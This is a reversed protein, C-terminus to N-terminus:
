SKKHFLKNNSCSFGQESISFSLKDPDFSEISIKKLDRWNVKWVMFHFYLFSSTGNIDNTIVGNNWHWKTPFNFSGDMWPIKANPTSFVELFEAKKLWPDFFAAINRLIKPSNKHRLFIKSFAKEDFALHEPNVILDKWNKIKKFATRMEDTNRLLCLHGSLRRSTLSFLQKSKLREETFHERLEGYILDIDGFGWFDYNLILEEHIYGLLPKIDCLKYPLKPNFSIQLRQSVLDCYEEFSINIVNVNQPCMEIPGCDTFFIWNITKNHACTLIYFQMWPPWKGFYPIVICISSLKEKTQETIM